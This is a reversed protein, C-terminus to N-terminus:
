SKLHSGQKSMSNRDVVHCVKKHSSLGPPPTLYRNKTQWSKKPGCGLKCKGGLINVAIGSPDDAVAICTKIKLLRGHSAPEQLM